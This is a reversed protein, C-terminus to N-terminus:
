ASPSSTTRRAAQNAADVHSVKEARRQFDNALAKLQGAIALDTMTQAARLLTEATRLYKKGRQSIQQFTM